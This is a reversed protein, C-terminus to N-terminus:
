ANFYICDEILMAQRRLKMQKLVAGFLRGSNLCRCYSGSGSRHRVARKGATDLATATFSLFVLDRASERCADAYTVSTVVKTLDM